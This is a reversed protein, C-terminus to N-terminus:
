ENAGGIFNKIAGVSGLLRRVRTEYLQKLITLHNREADTLEGDITLRQAFDAFNFNNAKSLLRELMELVIKKQRANIEAFYYRYTLKDNELLLKNIPMGIRATKEKISLGALGASIVPSGFSRVAAGTDITFISSPNRMRTDTLLDAIFLTAIDSPNASKLGSGRASRGGSIADEPLSVLYPRRTGTGAFWIDTSALGLHAQVESSFMAGLHEFETTPSVELIKQRDLSHETIKSNIKKSDVISSKALATARIHPRINGIQGGNSILNLAEDLSEVFGAEDEIQTKRVKKIKAVNTKKFAEAYWRRMQKPTKSGPVNVEIIDNAGSANVFQQEYAMAGNMEAAIMELRGAPNSSARMSEASAITKGLKRSEGPSLNRKKRLSISSGDPLVYLLQTVGTNSLMGLESRGIDSPTVANIIYSAGEMDRSDPVTRLVSASVVPTLVVGDRRVMRALRRNVTSMEAVVNGIAQKYLAFNMRGVKPILINPRRISSTQGNPKLAQVPRGNISIERPSNDAAITGVNLLQNAISLALQFLQKGCTSYYKDTFRGGFQFGEPCRFGRTPKVQGPLTRALVNPAGGRGGPIALSWATSRIPNARGGPVIPAVVSKLEQTSPLNINIIDAKFRVSQDYASINKGAATMQACKFEIAKQKDNLILLPLLYINPRSIAMAPMLKRTRSEGSKICGVCEAAEHRKSL